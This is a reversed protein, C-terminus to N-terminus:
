QICLVDDKKTISKTISREEVNFKYNFDSYKINYMNHSIMFITLSYKSHLELLETFIIIEMDNDINSTFEDLFLIKVNDFIINIFLRIIAVRQTQGKSLRKSNKSNIDAIFTKMNLLNMYKTIEQSIEDKKEKLLEENMGFTINYYISKSFLISESTLFTIYKRISFYTYNEYENLFKISGNKIKLKKMLTNVLTTKGSGSNGYIFHIGNMEFSLNVNMFVPIYKDNEKYEVTVNELVFLYEYTKDQNWFIPNSIRYSKLKLIDLLESSMNLKQKFVYVKDSLSMMASEASQMLTFLYADNVILSAITELIKYKNTLGLRRKSVKSSEYRNIFKPDSVVKVINQLLNSLEEKVKNKEVIVNLNNFFTLIDDTIDKGNVASGHNNNKEDSPKFLFFYLSVSYVSIFTINFSNRLLGYKTDFFFPRLFLILLENIFDCFYQIIKSYNEYAIAITKYSDLYVHQINILEEGNNLEINRNIADETKTNLVHLIKKEISIIAKKEYKRVIKSFITRNYVTLGSFIIKFIRRDEVKDTFYGFNILFELLYIYKVRIFDNKKDNEILLNILNVEEPTMEDSIIIKKLIDEIVSNDILKFIQNFITEM